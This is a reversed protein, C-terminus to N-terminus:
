KFFRYIDWERADEARQRPANAPWSSVYPSMGDQDEFVRFVGVNMLIHDPDSGKDVMVFAYKLNAIGTTTKTGSIVLATKTSIGSSQGVTNFFVTFNNDTGSIFAGSGTSSNSGSASVESMDITNYITNQNSFRIYQSNVQTGPAYGGNGYDECYVATFPEIFITGEIIPPTTGTYIPIYPEMKKVIDEPVVSNIREDESWPNIEGTFEVIEHNSNMNLTFENSKGSRLELESQTDLTYETGNMNVVLMTEKANLTQPPLIVKYSNSGNSSCVVEGKNGTATFSLSNLNVSARTRVNVMKVTINSSNWGDGTLNFIVRTLRHSFKLSVEKSDVAETTATCLDSGTYDTASSQNSKVSFEFSNAAQSTYPYIATYFLKRGSTYEIGNGSATFKSGNYTYQVNTAFNGNDAIIAKNDGAAAEMAFVGIRDGQQFQTDTARTMGELTPIFSVMETTTVPPEPTVPAPTLEESGGGGSCATLIMGSVLLWLMSMKRM